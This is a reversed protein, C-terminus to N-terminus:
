CDEEMLRQGELSWEYGRQVWDYIRTALHSDLGIAARFAALAEMEESPVVGDALAVAVLERYLM